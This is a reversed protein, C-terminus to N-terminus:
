ITGSQRCPVTRCSEKKCRQTETTWDSCCVISRLSREAVYPSRTTGRFRRSSPWLANATAPGVAHFLKDSDTLSAGDMLVNFVARFIYKIIAAYSTDLFCHNSEIIVIQKQSSQM